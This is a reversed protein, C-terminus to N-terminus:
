GKAKRLVRAVVRYVARADEIAALAEDETVTQGHVAASATRWFRRFEVAVEPPVDTTISFRGDHHPPGFGLADGYGDRRLELLLTEVDRRLRALASWM